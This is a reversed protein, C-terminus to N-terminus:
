IVQLLAEALSCDTSGVKLDNGDYKIGSESIVVKKGGFSNFKLEWTETYTDKQRYLMDIAVRQGLLVSQTYDSRWHVGAMDRGVAINAALKNLESEVTM